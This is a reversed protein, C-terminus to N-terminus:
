LCEIEVMMSNSSSKGLGTSAKDFSSFRALFIRPFDVWGTMPKGITKTTLRNNRILAESRRVSEAWFISYEKADEKLPLYQLVLKSPDCNFRTLRPLGTQAL